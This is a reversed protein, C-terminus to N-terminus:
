MSKEVMYRLSTEGDQSSPSPRMAACGPQPPHSVSPAQFHGGTAGRRARQPDMQAAKLRPAHPAGAAQRRSACAGGIERAAAAPAPAATLPTTAAAAASPTWQPLLSFARWNGETLVQLRPLALQERGHQQQRAPSAGGGAACGSATEFTVVWTPNSQAGTLAANHRCSAQVLQSPPTAIYTPPLCM